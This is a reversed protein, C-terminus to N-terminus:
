QMIYFPILLSYMIVDHNTLFYYIIILTSFQDNSQFCDLARQFASCVHSALEGKKYWFM